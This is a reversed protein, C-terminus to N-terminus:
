RNLREKIKNSLEKPDTKGKTLPMIEKMILGMDRESTPNVKLFVQNIIEELEETTLAKPLYEQLIELEKEEKNALDLRNANTYEKKSENRQKVQKSVVDIFVEDTIEKKNNIQEMQLGQKIARLVTLRFSDKNKMTTTIDLNLKELYNM